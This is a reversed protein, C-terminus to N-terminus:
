PAPAGKGRGEVWPEGAPIPKCKSNEASADGTRYYGNACLSCGKATNTWTVVKTTPDTTSGSPAKETNAIDAWTGSPSCVLYHPESNNPGPM